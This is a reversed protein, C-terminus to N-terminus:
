ETGSENSSTSTAPAPKDTSENSSSDKSEAPPAYNKRGYDTTYFGTGKYIVAPAHFLRKSTAACVPCKETPEADFSQKLEFKHSCSECQYEYIPVVGGYIMLVPLANSVGTV